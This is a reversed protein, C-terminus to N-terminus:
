WCARTRTGSWNRWASRPWRDEEIEGRARKEAYNAKVKAILREREEGTLKSTGATSM